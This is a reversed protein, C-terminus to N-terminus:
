KYYTVEARIKKETGGLRDFASQSIQIVTLAAVGAPLPGAVRVFVEKNTSENRVKLISGVKATAHYALYKRNGTTGEMLEAYGSERVENYGSGNEVVRQTVETIPKTAAVVPKVEGVPVETTISAVPQTTTQLTPQVVYLLQGIKVENGSLNNWSKLQDISIGYTKAISFLTEKAGVTHSAAITKLETKPIVVPKNQISGQVILEQGIELSNESLSNMKKLEDVSVGYKKAISYLTEKPEVKHLVPSAKSGASVKKQYPIKLISGVEIGSAAAPNAEVVELVTAGYRRSISYVTEKSDVQHIVYTKGDIVEMRLSDSDTTEAGWFGLWSIFLIKIM